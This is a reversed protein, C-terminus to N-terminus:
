SPVIEFYWHSGATVSAPGAGTHSGFATLYVTRAGTLISQSLGSMVCFRDASAGGGGENNRSVVFNGHGSPESYLTAGVASGDRVMFEISTGAPGLFDLSGGVRLRYPYGPDPIAFTDCTVTVGSAIGANGPLTRANLKITGPTFGRWIFNFQDWYDELIKGGAAKIATDVFAGARQRREGHYAGSTALLDGPLMVRPTGHLSTGKRVDTIDAGAITNDNAPRLIRAIPLADAVAAPLAPVVPSALPDGTVTIFKPGHQADAPFAGKDYPMVCVVDWRPNAGDAAPQPLNLVSELSVIYPGQGTRTCLYRGPQISLAQTGAGGTTQAVGDGWLEVGGGLDYYTTPNLVGPIFAFPTGQKSLFAGLFEKRFEIISNRGKSYVGSGNDDLLPIQETADGSVVVAVM